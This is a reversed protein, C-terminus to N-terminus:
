IKSIARFIQVAAGLASAILLLILVPVGVFEMLLYIALRINENAGGGPLLTLLIPALPALILAAINSLADIL